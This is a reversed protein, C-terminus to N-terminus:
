LLGADQFNELDKKAEGENKPRHIANRFYKLGNGLEVPVHDGYIYRITDDECLAPNTKMGTEALVKQIIDADGKVLVVESRGENFHKLTEEQIEKPIEDPDYMKGIVFEDPLKIIKKRVIYLGSGEIRKIINDRSKFADPKIVFLVINGEDTEIIPSTEVSDAYGIEEPQREFNNM